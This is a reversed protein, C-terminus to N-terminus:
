PGRGHRRPPPPRPLRRRGRGGWQILKYGGYIRVVLAAPASFRRAALLMRANHPDSGASAVDGQLGPGRDALEAATLPSGEMWIPSRTTCRWTGPTKVTTARRPGNKSTSFARPRRM